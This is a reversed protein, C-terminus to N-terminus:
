ISALEQEVAKLVEDALRNKKIDPIERAKAPTRAQPEFDPKNIYASNEKTITRDAIEYLYNEHYDSFHEFTDGWRILFDTFIEVLAEDTRTKDNLGLYVRKHIEPFIKKYPEGFSEPVLVRDRDIFSEIDVLKELEIRNTIAERLSELVAIENFQQIIMGMVSRFMFPAHDRTHALISFISRRTKVDPISRFFNLIIHRNNPDIQRQPISPRRKIGSIFGKVREAFDDWDRVRELLNLYGSYLEARTMKQPIINLFARPAVSRDQQFVRMRENLFDKDIGLVRGEKQLRSWLRTGKAAKLMNIGPNVICAEQLFEFHQDFIDKDDHDFGVIMTGRVSIGYSQIKKCDEVLNSRVNQIKNAEKLSEKNPSEIGILLRDFNADALFALMEDDKAVNISLQTSFRLPVDFSNNLPILERLLEKAYRPSGLFQDDSFLTNQVGLRELISVEELVRDVTKHRPRRGNLHIVDCFECDFQCGRTTQVAGTKYATVDIGDWRPLPSLALDPKTVQRYEARALTGSATSAKWDAIFQPWTLEAEGIFLIDFVGRYYEPRSSVGTGGIATPIGRKRFIRALERVRFVHNAYGTVGVIDYDKDFETSDDIRGHVPEDWVDVEIDDPTLAAITALHLPTLFAKTKSFQPLEAIKARTSFFDTESAPGIFLIKKM